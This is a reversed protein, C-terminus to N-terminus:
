YSLRHWNARSVDWVELGIMWDSLLKAGAIYLLCSALIMIKSISSALLWKFIGWVALPGSLCFVALGFRTEPLSVSNVACTLVFGLLLFVFLGDTEPGSLLNVPRQWRSRVFSVVSGAAAFLILHNVTHMPFYYWPQLDYLYTFLYGHNVSNFIHALLTPIGQHPRWLYLQWDLGSAEGQDMFPNRYFLQLPGVGSLNTEYKIAFTGWRVQASGLDTVPFPSFADHYVTNILIQPFLPIALSAISCITLGTRQRRSRWIYLLLFGIWAGVFVSNAPRLVLAFGAIIGGALILVCSQIYGRARLSLACVVATLAVLISANLGETLRLPV